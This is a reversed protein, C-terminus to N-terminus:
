DSTSKRSAPKPISGQDIAKGTRSIAQFRLTDGDFELLLFSNDSDFANASIGTRLANGARLKAAGGVVFYQVGKQPKMREYFHDHGSLVATVGYKVFLPELAARLVLNSGHRAGSSYIPHHFFVIKWEEEADALERELWTLQAHDLRSSDLGFFRINAAPRFTNYRRGNMHFPKYSQQSPADHNGLVAYFQVGADLLRAYPLEFKARFDRPKQSGYLNDGLMFVSQFQLSRQVEALRAGVEYQRTGGTGTDGIVACRFAM